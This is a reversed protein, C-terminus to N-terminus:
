RELERGVARELRSQAVLTEAAATLYSLRMDTVALLARVKALGAGGAADFLDQVRRYQTERAPLERQWYRLQEHSERVEMRVQDQLAARKLQGQRQEARKQRLQTFFDYSFPIKVGFTASWNNNRLPFRTATVEYDGALFLTPIRRSMALNVSIADMEARYTEGQLEPRLEMAWLTATKPDPQVPKTELTGSLEFPTDQEINLVRLFDYRQLVLQHQAESARARSAAALAEAEIRDLGELRSSLLGEASARAKELIDVKEQALLLKYFAQKVAQRVDMRVSDYFANAEKQGAQALRLTNMTRKGEYLNLTMYGRGAYLNESTAGPFLLVPRLDHSIAFPYRADYKTASGQLGFEPLFQYWAERVRESSIIKSQQASLLRSDNQLAASLADDLTFVRASQATAPPAALLLVLLVALARM